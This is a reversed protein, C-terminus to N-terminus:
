LTEDKKLLKAQYSRSGAMLTRFLERAYPAYEEGALATMEALIEEERREDLIPAGIKKKHEAIVAAASLREKFLSLIERNIRDILIVATDYLEEASVKQRDLELKEDLPSARYGAAFNLVFVKKGQKAYNEAAELSRKGSVVVKAKETKSQAPANVTSKEAFFVQAEASKRVAQVLAQDTTYRRETDRFIEANKTRRDIM